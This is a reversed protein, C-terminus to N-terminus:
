GTDLHLDRNLSFVSPAFTPFYGGSDDSYKRYQEWGFRAFGVENKKVTMAVKYDDVLAHGEVTLKSEKGIKDTLFFDEVGGNWGEKVW